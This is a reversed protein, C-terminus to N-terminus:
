LSYSLTLYTTAAQADLFSLAGGAGSTETLAVTTRLFAKFKPSFAWSAELDLSSIDIELPTNVVSITSVTPGVKVYANDRPSLSIGAFMRDTFLGASGAFNTEAFDRELEITYSLAEGAAYVASISGVIENDVDQIVPSVFDQTFVYADVAGSWKGNSYEAGFGLRNEDSDRNVLVHKRPSNYRIEQSGAFLYARGWDFYKGAFAIFDTERRDLTNEVYGFSTEEFMDTVLDINRGMISYFLRENDWEFAAEVQDAIETGAQIGNIKDEQSLGLITEDRKLLGRWAVHEGLQFRGFLNGSLSNMNLASFEEEIFSQGFFDFSAAIIRKETVSQAASSVSLIRQTGSEHSSDQWANNTWGYGAELDTTVRFDGLTIGESSLFSEPTPLESVQAPLGVGPM